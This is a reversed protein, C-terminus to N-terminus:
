TSNKKGYACGYLCSGCDVCGKANRPIPKPKLGCREAGEWLKRNHQNVELSPDASP